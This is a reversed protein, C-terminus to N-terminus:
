SIVLKRIGQIAKISMAEFDTLNQLKVRFSNLKYFIQIAEEYMEKDGRLAIIIAPTKHDAFHICGNFIMARIEPPFRRLALPSSTMTCNDMSCNAIKTEHLKSDLLSSSVVTCNTIHVQTLTSNDITCNSLKVNSLTSGAITSGFIEAHRFTCGTFKTKRITTGNITSNKASPLTAAM